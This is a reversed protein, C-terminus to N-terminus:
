QVSSLETALTRQTEERTVNKDGNRQSQRIRDPLSGNVTESNALIRSSFGTATILNKIDSRPTIAEMVCLRSGSVHLATASPKPLITPPSSSSNSYTSLESANYTIDYSLTTNQGESVLVVFFVGLTGKTNAISDIFIVGIIHQRARWDDGNHSMNIM